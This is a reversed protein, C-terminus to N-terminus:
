KWNLLVSINENLVQSFKKESIEIFGKKATSEIFNTLVEKSKVQEKWFGRSKEAISLRIFYHTGAQDTTIGVYLKLKSSYYFM